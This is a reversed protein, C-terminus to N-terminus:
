LYISLNWNSNWFNSEIKDLRKVFFQSIVLDVTM